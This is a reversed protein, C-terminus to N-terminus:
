TSQKIPPLSTPVQTQTPPGPSKSRVKSSGLIKPPYKNVKNNKTDERSPGGRAGWVLRRKQLLDPLPQLHEKKRTNEMHCLLWRVGRGPQYLAGWGVQTELNGMSFIASCKDKNSMDPGLSRAAPPCGLEPRSSTPIAKPLPFEM